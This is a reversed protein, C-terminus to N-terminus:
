RQFRPNEADCDVTGRVTAPPPVAQSPAPGNRQILMKACAAIINEGLSHLCASIGGFLIKQQMLPSGFYLAPEKPQRYVLAYRHDHPVHLPHGILLDGLRHM